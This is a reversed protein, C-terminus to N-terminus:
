RGISYNHKKEGCSGLLKCMWFDVGMIWNNHIGTMDFSEPFFFLFSYFLFSGKIFYERIPLMFLDSMQSIISATM